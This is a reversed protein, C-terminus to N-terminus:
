TEVIKGGLIKLAEAVQPHIQKAELEKMAQEIKQKDEVTLLWGGLLFLRKMSHIDKGRWSNRIKKLLEARDM